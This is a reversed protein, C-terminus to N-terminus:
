GMIYIGVGRNRKIVDYNSFAKVLKVSKYKKRNKQKETHTKTNMIKQFLITRFFIKLFDYDVSYTLCKNFKIDYTISNNSPKFTISEM